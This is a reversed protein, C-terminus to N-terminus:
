EQHCFFLKSWQLPICQRTLYANTMLIDSNGPKFAGATKEGREVFSHPQPHSFSLAHIYTLVYENHSRLFGM